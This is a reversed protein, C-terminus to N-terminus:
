THKKLTKYLYEYTRIIMLLKCKSEFKLNNLMSQSYFLTTLVLIYCAFTSCFFPISWPAERQLRLFTYHELERVRDRKKKKSTVNKEEVLCTVEKIFLTWHYDWFEGSTCTDIACIQVWFYKYGLQYSYFYIQCVVYCLNWIFVIKNLYMFHIQHSPLYFSFQLLMIERRWINSKWVCRLEFLIFDNLIM